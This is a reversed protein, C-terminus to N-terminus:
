VTLIQSINNKIFEQIEGQVVQPTVFTYHFSEWSIVEGKRDFQGAGVLDPKTTRHNIKNKRCYSIWVTEHGSYLGTIITGSKLVLFKGGDSRPGAIAQLKLDL